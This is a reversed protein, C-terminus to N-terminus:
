FYFYYFTLFLPQQSYYNRLQLGDTHRHVSYLTLPAAMQNGGLPNIHLLLFSFILAGGRGKNTRVNVDFYCGSQKRRGLM